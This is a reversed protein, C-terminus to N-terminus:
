WISNMPWARIFKAKAHGKARIELNGNDSLPSIVKTACLTQNAFVELVSRDLFLRLNLIGKTEEFSVPAELAGMKFKSNEFSMDLDYERKSGSKIGIAFSEAGNSEIELEIEMANRAPLKFPKSEDSLAVNKWEVSKGRL